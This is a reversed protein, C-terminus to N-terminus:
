PTFFEIRVDMGTHVQRGIYLTNNAFSSYPTMSSPRNLDYLPGIDFQPDSAPGKPRLNLLGIATRVYVDRNSLPLICSNSMLYPIEPLPEAVGNVWVYVPTKSQTRQPTLPRYLWPHDDADVGMLRGEIAPDAGKDTIRIVSAPVGPSLSNLWLNGQSDGFAVHGGVIESSFGEVSTMDIKGDRVSALFATRQNGRPMMTNPAGVYLHAGQGVPLVVFMGNALPRGIKTIEPTADLWNDGALVKLERTSQRYLWVNGAADAQVYIPRVDYARKSGSFSRAFLEHHDQILNELLDDQFAETRTLLFWKRNSEVVIADKGPIMEMNSGDLAVTAGLQPLAMAKGHDYVYLKRGSVYWVAGDGTETYRRYSDTSVAVAPSIPTAPDPAAPRVAVFGSAPPRYLLIDDGVALLPAQDFPTTVHGIAKDSSFDILTAENGNGMTVWEHRTSGVPVFHPGGNFSWPQSAWDAGMLLKLLEPGGRVSVAGSNDIALVGGAGIATEAAGRGAPSTEPPRTGGVKKISRAGLLTTGDSLAHLFLPSTVQYGGVELKPMGTDFRDTRIATLIHEIRYKADSQEYKPLERQLEISVSPGRAILAETAAERTAFDSAELQAIMDAVTEPPKADWPLFRVDGNLTRTWVGKANAAVELISWLLESGNQGASPSNLRSWNGKQYHWVDGGTTTAVLDGSGSGPFLRLASTQYGPTGEFLERSSWGGKGHMYVSGGYVFFATEDAYATAHSLQGDPANMLGGAGRGDPLEREIFSHGDYGLLFYGGQGMARSTSAGYFFWVRGGPEFLIPIAGQLHPQQQPFEKSIVQKIDDLTAPRLAPDQLTLWLRGDAGAAAATVHTLKTYRADRPLSIDPRVTLAPASAAEDARVVPDAAVAALLMITFFRPCAIPM